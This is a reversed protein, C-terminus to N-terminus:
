NDPFSFSSCFKLTGNTFKYNSYVFLLSGTVETNTKRYFKNSSWKIKDFNQTAKRFTDSDLDLPVHSASPVNPIPISIRFFSVRGIPLRVIALTTCITAVRSTQWPRSYTYIPLTHSLLSSALFRPTLLHSRHYIKRRSSHWEVNLRRSDFLSSRFVVELAGQPSHTPGRSRGATFRAEPTSTTDTWLRQQASDGPNM